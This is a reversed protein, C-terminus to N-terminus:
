IRDLHKSMGVYSIEVGAITKSTLSQTIEWGHALYFDKATLTSFLQGVPISRSRMEDEVAQLLVTGIGLRSYLPDIYLGVVWDDRCSSFGAISREATDNWVEAVFMIQTGESMAQRCREPTKNLCRAEMQEATYETACLGQISAVNIEAIRGADTSDARRVRIQM